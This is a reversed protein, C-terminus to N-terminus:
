QRLVGAQHLSKLYLMHAGPSIERYGVDFYTREAGYQDNDVRFTWTDFGYGGIRRIVTGAPMDITICDQSVTLRDLIEEADDRLFLFTRDITDRYTARVRQLEEIQRTLWFGDEDGIITSRQLDADEMRRVDAEQQAGRAGRVSFNVRKRGSHIFRVTNVIGTFGSHCRFNFPGGASVGQLLPTRAAM